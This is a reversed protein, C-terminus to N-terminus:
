WSLGWGLWVSARSKFVTVVLRLIVRIGESRVGDNSGSLCLFVVRIVDADVKDSSVDWAQTLGVWARRDERGDVLFGLAVGM